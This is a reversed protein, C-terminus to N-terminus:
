KTINRGNYEKIGGVLNFVMYGQYYLLKAVRMSRGGRSCYVLVIKDNVIKKMEEIAKEYPVSKAGVIHGMAYEQGSRVDWIIVKDKNKYLFADLEYAAINVINGFSRRM